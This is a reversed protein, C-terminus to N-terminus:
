NTAVPGLLKKNFFGHVDHVSTGTHKLLDWSNNKNQKPYKYIMLAIITGLINKDRVKKKEKTKRKNKKREGKIIKVCLKAELISSLKHVEVM